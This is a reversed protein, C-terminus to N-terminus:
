LLPMMLKSLLVMPIIETICLYTFLYFVSYSGNAYVLQLVRLFRFGFVIVFGYFAYLVAQAPLIWYANYCIAVVGLLIFSLYSAMRLFEFFHPFTLKGASFLNAMLGILLYKFFFFCFGIILFIPVVVWEGLWLSQAFHELRLENLYANPLLLYVTLGISLSNLLLLIFYAYNWSSFTGISYMASPPMLWTKAGLLESIEKTFLRYLGIYGILVLVFILAKFDHLANTKFPRELTPNTVIPKISFNAETGNVIGAKTIPLRSQPHYITLYLPFDGYHSFVEQLRIHKVGSEKAVYWLKNNFYICLDETVEVELYYNDKNPYLWTSIATAGFDTQPDYPLYNRTNRDYVLWSDALPRIVTAEAKTILLFFGLLIIPMRGLPRNGLLLM